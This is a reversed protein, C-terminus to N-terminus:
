IEQCKGSLLLTYYEEALRTRVNARAFMRLDETLNWYFKERIALFVLNAMAKIVEQFNHQSIGAELRPKLDVEFLIRVDEIRDSFPILILRLERGTM